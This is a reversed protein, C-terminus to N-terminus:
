SSWFLNKELGWRCPQLCSIFFLLWAIDCAVALHVMLFQAATGRLNRSRAREASHLAPPGALLNANTLAVKAVLYTHLPFFLFNFAHFNPFYKYLGSRALNAHNLM